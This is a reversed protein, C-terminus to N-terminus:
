VDIVDPDPPGRRTPPKPPNRRLLGSIVFNTVSVVVSGFFAAGFGAVHFGNVLHGVLLFVLANIVVIGLGMTVLIFPLTFLVLVPKLVANFFTLLIVVTLLTAGDDCHIGPVLKTALTVGLALICLRVLLSLVSNMAAAARM